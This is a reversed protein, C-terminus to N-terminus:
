PYPFEQKETNKVQLAKKGWLQVLKKTTKRFFLDMWGLRTEKSAKNSKLYPNWKNLNLIVEVNSELPINVKLLRGESDLIWQFM